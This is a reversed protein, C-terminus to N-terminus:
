GRSRGALEDARQPLFVYGHGPASRDPEVSGGAPDLAGDLVAGGEGVRALREVGV